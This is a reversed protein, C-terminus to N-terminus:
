RSGYTSLYIINGNYSFVLKNDIKEIHNLIFSRKRVEELQGPSNSKLFNDEFEKSSFIINLYNKLYGDFTTTTYELMSSPKIKNIMYNKIYGDFITTTHELM